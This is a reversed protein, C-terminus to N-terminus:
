FQYGLNLGLLLIAGEGVDEGETKVNIEYGFSVSPQLLIQQNLEFDYVLGFTPQFIIINTEGTDIGAVTCFRFGCIERTNEWDIEMFWLDTRFHLSLKETLFRIKKVGLSFGPGGGEENDHEGWDRRDTFNYGVRSTLVSNKAIPIDFRLGPVIGAPYVQTEFGITNQSSVSVPILLFLWAIKKM